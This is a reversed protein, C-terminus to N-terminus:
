GLTTTEVPGNVANTPLSLRVQQLHWLAQALDAIELATGPWTIPNGLEVGPPKTLIHQLRESILRMSHELQGPFKQGFAERHAANVGQMIKVDRAMREQQANHVISDRLSNDPMM